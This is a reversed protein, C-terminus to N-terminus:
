RVIMCYMFEYLVFSFSFARLKFNLRVCGVIDRRSGEDDWINVIKYNVSVLHVCSLVLRACSLVLVCM